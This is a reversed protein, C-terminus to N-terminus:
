KISSIYYVSFALIGNLICISYYIAKFTNKHLFYGWLIRSLGCAIAGFSGIMTLYKDDSIKDKVYTRYNVSVMLGFNSGVNFLFYGFRNYSLDVLLHVIQARRLHSSM